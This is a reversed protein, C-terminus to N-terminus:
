ANVVGLTGADNVTIKFKTGNPSTMIIADVYATKWPRSAEGLNYGTDVPVLNHVGTTEGSSIGPENIIFDGDRDVTLSNDKLIANRKTTIYNPM